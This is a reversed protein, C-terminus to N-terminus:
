AGLPPDCGTQTKVQSLNNPLMRKESFFECFKNRSKTPKSACEVEIVLMCPPMGLYNAGVNLEHEYEASHLHRVHCFVKAVCLKVCEDDTEQYSYMSKLERGRASLNTSKTMVAIM